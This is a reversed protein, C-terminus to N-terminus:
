DVTIKLVVPMDSKIHPASVRLANEDRTWRLEGEAGLAEVRKVIGSFLPLKSADGHRLSALAVEGNEPWLMVTAYVHSGNCTYRVDESTFELPKGDSFQGEAVATPGEQSVRWVRADYVAEGNVGLWDGVSTLIRVDEPAIEGNAKPGVNLLLRGNKSVIDILNWVIERASKYDNEVTYCWSNRATSTDSQWLYPKAEAFQGREVDPVACGFPFADHKYHIVCGTGWEEGRNYYYAAFRKLYPKVASHQIWWDFYVMKPRYRDVLECCRLLWDDLFEDTPAPLSFLDHGDGEKQAPWYFDGLKMPDRVDSEFERGHSMFFWHEVRHSSAGFTLGEDEAAAKLEGLVDRKPGMEAANWHSLESKYMQFGDHHEGVPTIYQAGARKFLRAWERADFKDATFLPIFDKYGFKDQTGYTRVHHEFARSGQIYMNRSYWENDFEPVTYVGWHIFIGFKLRAYWDPIPHAALSDWDPKYRGNRNVDDIVNLYEHRDM